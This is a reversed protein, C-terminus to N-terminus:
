AFQFSLLLQRTLKQLYKKHRLNFIRSDDATEAHELVIYALVPKSVTFDGSELAKLKQAKGDGVFLNADLEPPQPHYRSLYEQVASAFVSDDIWDEVTVVADKQESVFFIKSKAVGAEILDKEYKQGAPDRDVLYAVNEGQTSFQMLTSKSANALGPVVQFGNYEVENVQRFISPVILMETPGEAVIAKRTPFFALTQAGMGYLLPSFGLTDSSWFNNEIESTSFHDTDSVPRVLRVGVGLDEPLCGASHTTYIVQSALKRETFTQILDAQADYHLHQEAEDILLIPSHVNERIIFALLAAYQRFGDSREAIPSFEREDDEETLVMIEIYPKQWSLQLSVDSQSWTDTFIERLKGNARDIQTHIRDTRNSSFSEKLARLNLESIECLNQLARCPVTRTQPQEHEFTSLNYTPELERDRESFEIFRPQRSDTVKLARDNPDDSGELEVFSAIETPLEQLYKPASTINIEDLVSRIEDLFELAGSEYTEADLDLNECLRLLEEHELGDSGIAESFLRSNVARSLKKKFVIRHEKPRKLRPILEHTLDGQDDKSVVYQRPLSSGIAKRDEDSLDFVVEASIESDEPYRHRDSPPWSSNDSLKSLLRLASTKGAENPGVLVTLKSSTKLTTKKLFRRYGSFTVRSLRMNTSGIGHKREAQVELM